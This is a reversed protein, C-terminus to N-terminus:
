HFDLLFIFANWLFVNTLYQLFITVYIIIISILLITILIRVVTGINIIKYYIICYFSFDFSKLTLFLEEETWNKKKKKSLWKHAQLKNKYILSFITLFSMPKLKFFYIKTIVAQVWMKFNVMVYKRLM